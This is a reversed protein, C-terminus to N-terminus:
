AAEEENTEDKTKSTAKLAGAIATYLARADMPMPDPLPTRTGAQFRATPATRLQRRPGLTEALLIYQCSGEVYTRVRKDLRPVYRTAGENDETDTHSVFWLGYPSALLQGVSERFLAEAEATGKGWDVLAAAKKGHKAAAAQDAFKWLDDALDLGITKYDHGGKVILDVTEAFQQWSSVHQVYHEGDLLDTGHHTDIILTSAPAWASLLTSKGVKPFGALLVRAQLPDVGARTQPERPLTTLGQVTM